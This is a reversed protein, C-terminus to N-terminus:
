ITGHLRFVSDLKKVSDAWEGLGKADCALSHVIPALSDGLKASILKGLNRPPM